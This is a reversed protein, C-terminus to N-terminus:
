TKEYAVFAPASGFSLGESVARKVNGADRTEQPKKGKKIDLDTESYLGAQIKRKRGCYQIPTLQGWYNPDVSGLKKGKLIKWLAEVATMRSAM